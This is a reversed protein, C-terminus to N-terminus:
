VSFEDSKEPTLVGEVGHLFLEKMQWNVYKDM